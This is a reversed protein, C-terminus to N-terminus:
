RLKRIGSTGVILAGALPNVALHAILQQVENRSLLSAANRTFEPLEAITHM